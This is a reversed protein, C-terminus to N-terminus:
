LNFPYRFDYGDNCKLENKLFDMIEINQMVTAISYCINKHFVFAEDNNIFDDVDVISLSKIILNFVLRLIEIKKSFVAAELISSNEEKRTFIVINPLSALFNIVDICGREVAADIPHYNAHCDANINIDPLSCLFKVIGLHGRGAAFHLATLNKKCSFEFSFQVDNIANVNMKGHFTSILYRAIDLNGNICAAALATCGQSDAQNPDQHLVSECDILARLNYHFISTTVENITKKVGFHEELYMTLEHHFFHISISLCEEDFAVKRDECLHIIAYNEGAVAYRSLRKPYQQVKQYLFKFCKLSGFFAAYEILTPQHGSIGNNIFDLREFISRKIITDVPTNTQSLFSQLGDIDDNRIFLAIKNPNQGKSRLEIFKNIISQTDNIDFEFYSTRVYNKISIFINKNFFKFNPFNEKIEPYFYYQYNESLEAQNYISDISVIVAQFLKYIFFNNSFSLIYDKSQLINTPFKAIQIFINIYDVNSDLRTICCTYLSILISKFTIESNLLPSLSLKQSFSDVVAKSVDNLELLENQFDAIDKINQM